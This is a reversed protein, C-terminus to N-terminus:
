IILECFSRVGWYAFKIRYLKERLYSAKASLAITELDEKIAELLQTKCMIARWASELAAKKFM